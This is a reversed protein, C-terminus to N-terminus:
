RAGPPPVLVGMPPSLPTPAAGPLVPRIVSTAAPAADPKELPAQDVPTPAAEESVLWDKLNRRIQYELEVNMDDTMAKTIDYLTGRLDDIDGSHRQTVRAEAFGGRQGDPTIINLQVDMVGAIQKKQKILSADRIVFIAHGAAGFAKLRDRALGRLAQVPPIPDQNTVDPDVGSPVFRQEVEVDAVNLRIATLASYDLPPFDKREEGCAAVVLPLLVCLRRTLVPLSM